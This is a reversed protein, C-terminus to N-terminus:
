KVLILASAILSLILTSTHADIDPLLGLVPILGLLIFVPLLKFCNVTGYISSVRSVLDDM